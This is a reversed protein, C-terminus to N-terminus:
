NPRDLEQVMLPLVDRHAHQGMFIDLHGYDPIVHLTHYGPRQADLWAFSRRQSEPLFCRNREGTFFAFRADTRPKAAIPDAPVDARRDWAVLHGASICKAMQQFFSMPVAAFENKLWEHTAGNLNEHRWLTPFGVGYAPGAAWPSSKSRIRM